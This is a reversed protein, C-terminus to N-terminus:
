NVYEKLYEEKMFKDWYVIQSYNLMKHSILDSRFADYTHATLEKKKGIYCPNVKYYKNKEFQIVRLLNLSTLENKVTKWQRLSIGLKLAIQEDKNIKINNKFQLTYCNSCYSSILKKFHYYSKMSIGTEFLKLEFSDNTQHYEKFGEIKNKKVGKTKMYIEMEEMTLKSPENEMLSCIRKMKYIYDEKQISEYEEKSLSVGTESITIDLKDLKSNM